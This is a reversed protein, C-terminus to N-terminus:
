WEEPAEVVATATSAAILNGATTPVTLRGPLDGHAAQMPAVLEYRGGRPGTIRTHNKTPTVPATVSANVPKGAITVVFDGPQLATVPRRTQM